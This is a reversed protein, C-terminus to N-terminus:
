SGAAMLDRLLIALAFSAVGVALCVARSPMHAIRRRDIVLLAIATYPVQFGLFFASYDYWLPKTKTMTIVDAWAYLSFSAWVVAVFVNWARGVGAPVRSALRGIGSSAEREAPDCAVAEDDAVQLWAEKLEAASAYRQDPDFQTARVLVARLAPPIRPDDFGSDRLGVSPDEGLLCFALTMGLAYIDSRADTQRYGFQEPPAYGPTGYRMTDRPANERYERAIGLDILVVRDGSVMVNSPKIDRHIVPQELGVHLETVADCLEGAVRRALGMGAEGQEVVDRLTSGHVYEMVVELRDAVQACEYILPQHALWRGAVQARYILRYASGRGAHAVFTKRVFPGDGQRGHEDKRYVVQTAEDPTQRLTRKVEYPDLADLWALLEADSFEDTDPQTPPM